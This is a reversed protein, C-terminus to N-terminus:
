TALSINFFFFLTFSEYKRTESSVVFSCYDFLEFSHLTNKPRSVLHSPGQTEGRKRQRWEVERSACQISVGRSTPERKQDGRSPTARKPEREWAWGNSGCIGGSPWPPKQSSTCTPSQVANGQGEGRANVWPWLYLCAKGQSLTIWPSFPQTENWMEPLLHPHGNCKRGSAQETHLNIWWWGAFCCIWLTGLADTRDGCGVTRHQLLTSPLSLLKESNLSPLPVCHM